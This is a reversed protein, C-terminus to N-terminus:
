GRREGGGLGDLGRLGEVHEEPPCSDREVIPRSYAEALGDVRSMSTVIKVGVLAALDALDPEAYITLISTAAYSAIAENM